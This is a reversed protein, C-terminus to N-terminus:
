SSSKEDSPAKPKNWNEILGAATFAEAKRECKPCVTSHFVMYNITLEGEYGCHCPLIKENAM